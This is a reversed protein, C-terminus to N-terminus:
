ISISLLAINSDSLGSSNYVKDVYVFTLVLCIGCICANIATDLICFAICLVLYGVVQLALLIKWLISMLTSKTEVLYLTAPVWLVSATIPMITGVYLLPTEVIDKVACCMWASAAFILVHIHVGHLPYHGKFWLIVYALIWAIYLPVLIYFLM